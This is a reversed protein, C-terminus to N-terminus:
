ITNQHANFDSFFFALVMQTDGKCTYSWNLKGLCRSSWVIYGVGIMEKWCLLLYYYYYLWNERQFLLFLLFCLFYFCKEGRWFARAAGVKKQIVSTQKTIQHQSKQDFFAGWWALPGVHGEQFVHTGSSHYCMFREIEERIMMIVMM